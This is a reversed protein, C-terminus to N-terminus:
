NKNTKIIEYPSQGKIMAENLEKHASTLGKDFTLITRIIYEPNHYIKKNPAVIIKEKLIVYILKNKEDYLYAIILYSYDLLFRKKMFEIFTNIVEDHFSKTETPKIILTLLIQKENHFTRSVRYMFIRKKALPLSAKTSKVAEIVKNTDDLIIKKVIM